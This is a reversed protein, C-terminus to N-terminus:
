VSLKELQGVLADEDNAFDNIMDLWVDDGQYRELLQDLVETAKETSRGQEKLKPIILEELLKSRKADEDDAQSIDASLQVMKRDYETLQGQTSSGHKKAPKGYGNSPRGNYGMPVFQNNFGYGPSATPPIMSAPYFFQNNPFYYGSGGNKFNSNMQQGRSRRNNRQAFSVHIVHGDLIANNMAVIARSAEQATKYCVFGFGRSLGEEQTMIKASVIIGYPSFAAYLADDDVAPTLNKVYLNSQQQNPGAVPLYGSQGVVPLPAPQPIVTISGPSSSMPVALVPSTIVPPRGVPFSALSPPSHSKHREDRRQARSVFLVYDPEIEKGNLEELARLASEHTKYSVFGFRKWTSEQGDPTPSKSERTEPLMVSTVEGYAAFLEKLEAEGYSEPFNKVYLSTFHSREFDLREIREKKAIHHNLFLKSGNVLLGNLKEIAEDASDGNAFNVFGYGRSRGFEDTVIKCSSIEGFPSFLQHLDQTNIEQTLGRVYINGPHTLADYDLTISWGYESLQRELEQADDKNIFKVKLLDETSLLIQYNELKDLASLAKSLDHSSSGRELSVV